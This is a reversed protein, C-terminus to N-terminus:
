KNQKLGINRAKLDSKGASKYKMGGMAKTGTLKRYEAVLAKAEPTGKAKKIKAELGKMM